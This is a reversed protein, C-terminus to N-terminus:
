SAFCRDLFWGGWKLVRYLQQVPAKPSVAAFNFKCSLACFWRQGSAALSMKVKIISVVMVAFVCPMKRPNSLSTGAAETHSTLRV